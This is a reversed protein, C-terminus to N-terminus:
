GILNGGVFMDLRECALVWECVGLEKARELDPIKQIWANEVAIVTTGIRDKLFFPGVGEGRLEDALAIASLLDNEPSSAMLTVTVTGSRNRNRSRAVDGGAGVQMTFADESRTATIFTDPGFATLPVGLFSALHEGPDYTRTSM